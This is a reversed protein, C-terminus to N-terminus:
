KSNKVLKISATPKVQGAVAVVQKPLKDSLLLQLLPRKKAPHNRAMMLAFTLTDRRAIDDMAGYAAVIRELNTM